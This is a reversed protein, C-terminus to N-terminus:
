KVNKDLWDGMIQLAEPAFTEELQGYETTVCTKCHQFLHNLGDLKEVTANTVSSKKLAERIAAQNQDPVVQVDRSGNLSLVKCHLKSIYDAPDTQLFYRMWPKNLGEVQQQVFIKASSDGHYGLARTVEPPTSNKWSTFSTWAAQMQRSTDPSSIVAQMIGLSGNKFAEAIEPPTGNSRLIAEQQLSLLDIGKLGPGALMIIFDVDKNEAAVMDAILGGESHGILGIKSPNVDKRKRLERFSVEVDNAFDRTTAKAVDGTSRGMQRDDVRLIAYGRRTLYDAIVAFPKHGFLTEDRDQQGSGTILIAAPFPGAGPPLTLTAGYHNGTAPDDYELDESKYPFPPKPTQPRVIVKAATDTSRALPTSFQAGNQFFNGSIRDAHDWQGRYGGNITKIIMEISDGKVQTESCPLGFAAQDPSDFTSLYRGDSDARVHFVLRLKQAGVTLLGQWTGTISQPKAVLSLAIAFFFLIQKKM